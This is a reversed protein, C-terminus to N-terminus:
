AFTDLCAALTVVVEATAGFLRGDGTAAVVWVRQSDALRIRAEVSAVGSLPTLEFGVLRPVPNAPAFVDIRAVHDAATMPSDVDITIPVSNGNEALAPVDLRVREFRIPAGGYAERLPAPRPGALEAAALPRVTLAVAAAAGSALLRRRLYSEPQNSM